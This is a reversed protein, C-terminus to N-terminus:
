RGQGQVGRCLRGCNAVRIWAKRHAPNSRRGHPKKGKLPERRVCCSVGPHEMNWTVYRGWTKEVERRKVGRVVKRTQKVGTGSKPNEGEPGRGTGFRRRGKPARQGGQRKTRANQTDLMPNWYVSHSGSILTRLIPVGNPVGRQRVEVELNKAVSCNTVWTRRNLGSRAAARKLNRRKLTEVEWVGQGGADRRGGGVLKSSFAKQSVNRESRPTDIPSPRSGVRELQSEGRAIGRRKTKGM